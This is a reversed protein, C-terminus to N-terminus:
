FSCLWLDPVSLVQHGMPLLLFGEPSGRGGGRLLGHVSSAVDQMAPHLRSQDQLATPSLVLLIPLKVLAQGTKQSVSAQTAEWFGM